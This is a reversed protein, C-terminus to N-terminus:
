FVFVSESRGVASSVGGSEAAPGAGSGFTTSGSYVAPLTVTSGLAAVRMGQVTVAFLQPSLAGFLDDFATSADADTALTATRCECTHNKSAVTYDLFYRKTNEVPLPAM